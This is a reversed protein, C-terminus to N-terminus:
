WLSDGILTNVTKVATSFSLYSSDRIEAERFSKIDETYDSLLSEMLENISGKRKLVGFIVQTIDTNQFGKWNFCYRVYTAWARTIDWFGFTFRGSYM